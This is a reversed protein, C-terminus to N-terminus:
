RSLAGDTLSCKKNSCVGPSYITLAVEACGQRHDAVGCLLCAKDLPCFHTQQHYATARREGDVAAFELHKRVGQLQFAGIHSQVVEYTGTDPLPQSRRLAEGAGEM